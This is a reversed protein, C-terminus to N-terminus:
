YPRRHRCSLRIIFCKKNKYFYRISYSKFKLIIIIIICEQVDRDPVCYSIIMYKWKKCRSKNQSLSQNIAQWSDTNSFYMTKCDLPYDKVFSCHFRVCVESILYFRKFGICVCPRRWVGEGSDGSFCVCRRKSHIEISMIIKISYLRYIRDGM